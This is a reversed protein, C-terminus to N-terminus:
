LTIQDQDALDDEVTYNTYASDGYITSGPPLDLPLAFLAQGDHPAGPMFVLAVPLGTTTALIHLRVGYFYRRKSQIYGRYEEGRVWRRRPIRINDCIPVPVSDVVYEMGVHVNKFLRGLPMCMQHVLDHVAHRRRCWRSKGLM